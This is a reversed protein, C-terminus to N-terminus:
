STKPSVSRVDPGNWFSGSLDLDPRAMLGGFLIFKYTLYFATTQKVPCFLGQVAQPGPCDVGVGLSSLYEHEINSFFFSFFFINTTISSTSM